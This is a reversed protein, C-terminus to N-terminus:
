SATGRWLLSFCYCLCSKRFPFVQNNSLRWHHCFPAPSDRLPLHPCSQSRCAARLPSSWLVQNLMCGAYGSCASAAPQLMQQVYGAGPLLNQLGGGLCFAPSILEPAQVMCCWCVWLAAHYLLMLCLDAPIGLPPSPASCSKNARDRRVTQVELHGKWGSVNEPKGQNQSVSVLFRRHRSRAMGLQMSERQRFSPVAKGSLKVRKNQGEQAMVTKLNNRGRTSAVPFWCSGSKRANKSFSGAKVNDATM